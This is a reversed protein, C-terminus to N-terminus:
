QGNRKRIFYLTGFSCILVAVVVSGASVHATLGEKEEPLEQDRKPVPPNLPVMDARSVPLCAPYFLALAVVIALIRKM